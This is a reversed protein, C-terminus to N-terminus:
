RGRGAHRVPHPIVLRGPSRAARQRPRPEILPPYRRALHLQFRDVFDIAFHFLAPWKQALWAGCKAVVAPYLVVTGLALFPTGPPIPGPIMVGATGAGVLVVGLDRPLGDLKRALELHLGCPALIRAPSPRAAPTKSKKLKGAIPIRGIQVIRAEPAELWVAISAVRRGVHGAGWPRADFSVQVPVSIACHQM